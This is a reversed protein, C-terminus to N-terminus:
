DGSGILVAVDDVRQVLRSTHSMWTLGVRNRMPSSMTRVAGEGLMRLTRVKTGTPGCGRRCGRRFRINVHVKEGVCDLCGFLCGGEVQAACSGFGAVGSLGEMRPASTGMVAAAATVIVRSRGMGGAVGCKARRGETARERMHSASAEAAVDGASIAWNVAIASRM